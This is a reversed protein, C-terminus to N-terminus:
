QNAPADGHTQTYVGNDVPYEQHRLKDAPPEGVDISIPEFVLTSSGNHFVQKIMNSGLAPARYVELSSNEQAQRSVYATYGLITETRAFGQSQRLTEADAVSIDHGSLFFMKRQDPRIAFVGRGIEAFGEEVRNNPFQKITHWNGNSSVYRTETYNYETNGSADTTTVRWVITYPAHRPARVSMAVKVSLMAVVGACLLLLLTKKSM